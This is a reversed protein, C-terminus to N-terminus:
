NCYSRDVYRKRGSASYTYCGGRPGTYYGRSEASSRGTSGSSARRPTSTSSSPQSRAARAKPAYTRVDDSGRYAYGIQTDTHDLVPAWGNADKPGMAVKEGRYLTRVLPADKNAESGVNLSGHMYLEDRPGTYAPATTSSILSTPHADTAPPTSGSNCMGVLGLFIIGLLGAGLCGAGSATGAGGQGGQAHTGATTSEARKGKTRVGPAIKFSKRITM